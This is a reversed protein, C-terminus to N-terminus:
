DPVFLAIADRNSRSWVKQMAEQKSMWKFDTHETLVIPLGAPVKVSFVYENNFESGSPYRYLWEPRIKYQNVLRCDVIPHKSKPLAIGTEEALERYAANLPIEDQEITGTVSQWFNADDERQMILVQNHEDRVVVLVSEPRKLQM